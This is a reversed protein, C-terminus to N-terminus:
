LAVEQLRYGNVTDDKQMCSLIMQTLEKALIEAADQRVALITKIAVSEPILEGTGLCLLPEDCTKLPEFTERILEPIEVCAGGSWFMGELHVCLTLKSM